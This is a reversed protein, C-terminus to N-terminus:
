MRPMREQYKRRNIAAVPTHALLRHCVTCRIVTKPYVIKCGRCFNEIEYNPKM